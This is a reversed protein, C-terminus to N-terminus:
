WGCFLQWPFWLRRASSCDLLYLYLTSSVHHVDGVRYVMACNVSVPYCSITLTWSRKRAKSVSSHQAAQASSVSSHQPGSIKISTGPIKISTGFIKISTESIKMSTGFIKISTGSIKLVNQAEGTLANVRTTMSGLPVWKRHLNCQVTWSGLLSSFSDLIFSWLLWTSWTQCAISYCHNLARWLVM